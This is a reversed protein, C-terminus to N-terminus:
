HKLRMSNKCPMSAMLLYIVCHGERWADAVLAIAHENQLIINLDDAKQLWECTPCGEM